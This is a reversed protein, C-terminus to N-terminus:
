HLKFYMKKEFIVKKNESFCIDSCKNNEININSNIYSLFEYYVKTENICYILLSKNCKEFM